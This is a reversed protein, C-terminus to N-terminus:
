DPKSLWGKLYATYRQLCMELFRKNYPSLTRTFKKVADRIMDRSVTNPEELRSKILTFLDKRAPFWIEYFASVVEHNEPGFAQHFIDPNNMGFESSEQEMREIDYIMQRCALQFEADTVEDGLNGQVEKAAEIFTFRFRSALILGILLASTTEDGVFKRPLTRVFIVSFKRAGNGYIVQRALLPRYFQGDHARFSTEPNRLNRQHAADLIDDEVKDMWAFTENNAELSSKMQEWSTKLEGSEDPDPSLGLLNFTDSLATVMSRGPIETRNKPLPDRIDIEMRVQYFKESIPDNKRADQFKITLRKVREAIEAAMRPMQRLPLGKRMTGGHLPMRDPHYYFDEFLQALPTDIYFDLESTPDPPGDSQYPRIRRNQVMALLSPVAPTDHICLLRAAETIKKSTDLLHASTFIGIEFGCFDYPRRERGTYLFILWDAAKLNTIIKSHWEEGSRINYADLFCHVRAPNVATLEEQLCQAIGFDEHSYSIFVHVDTPDKKIEELELTRTESM